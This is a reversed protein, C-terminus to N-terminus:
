KQYLADVARDAGSALDISQTQKRTGYPPSSPGFDGEVCAGNEPNERPSPADEGM